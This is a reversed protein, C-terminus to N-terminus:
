LWVTLKGGKPRHYLGVGQRNKEDGAINQQSM